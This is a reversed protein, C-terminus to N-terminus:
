WRSRCWYHNPLSGVALGFGNGTGPALVLNVPNNSPQVQGDLRVLDLNLIVTSTGANQASCGASFGSPKFWSGTAIMAPATTLATEINALSSTIATLQSAVGALQTTVVTGQSTINTV